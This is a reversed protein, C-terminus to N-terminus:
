DSAEMHTRDEPEDSDSRDVLARVSTKTITIAEIITGQRLADLGSRPTPTLRNARERLVVGALASLTFSTASAALLLIAQTNGSLGGRVDNVNNAASIDELEAEDWTQLSGSSPDAWPGVTWLPALYYIGASVVVLILGLARVTSRRKALWLGRLSGRAAAIQLVGLSATFAVTFYHEAFLERAALFGM